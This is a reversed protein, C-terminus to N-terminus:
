CIPFYTNRIDWGDGVGIPVAGLRGWFTNTGVVSSRSHGFEAHYCTLSPCTEPSWGHGLSPAGADGFKQSRRCHTYCSFCCGYKTQDDFTIHPVNKCHWGRGRGQGCNKHCSHQQFNSAWSKIECYKVM